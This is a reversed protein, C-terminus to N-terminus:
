VYLRENFSIEEYHQSVKHYLRLGALTRQVARLASWYEYLEEATSHLQHTLM